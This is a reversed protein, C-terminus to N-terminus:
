YIVNKSKFKKSNKKLNLMYYLIIYRMDRERERESSTAM